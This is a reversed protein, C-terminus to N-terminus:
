KKVRLKVRGEGKGEKVRKEVKSERGKVVDRFV